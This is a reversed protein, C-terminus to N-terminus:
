RPHHFDQTFRSFFFLYFVPIDVSLSFDDQTRRLHFPDSAYKGKEREEGKEKYMATPLM